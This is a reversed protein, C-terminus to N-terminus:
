FCFFLKDGEIDEVIGEIEKITSIYWDRKTKHSTFEEQNKENLLDIRILMFQENQFLQGGGKREEHQEGFVNDLIIDQGQLKSFDYPVPQLPPVQKKVTEWDIGEFYDDNKIEDVGSSGLREKWNPNLLKKILNYMQPSMQGEDYGISPWDIEFEGTAYDKINQFIQEKTDANFPPVGIVFEYVMCGFAWWDISVHRQFNGSLVEPSMYDPTGVVRAKLKQKLHGAEDAQIKKGARRKGPKKKTKDFERKFDKLDTIEKLGFDNQLDGIDTSVVNEHYVQSFNSLGFDALKIHMHKDLLINEPKLDRHIINNKHLYDIALVLEALYQKAEDNEDLYGEERLLDGFDGGPLFEMAFCVYNKHIFSFHATVVHEGSIVQFINRENILNQKFAESVDKSFRIIKMAYIDGTKKQRVLMVHGYGGQGIKKLMEFEKLTVSDKKDMYAQERFKRDFLISDSKWPRDYDEDGSDDDLNNGPGYVEAEKAKKVNAHHDDEKFNQGKKATMKKIVDDFVQIKNKIEDKKLKAEGLEEKKVETNKKSFVSPKLEKQNNSKLSNRGGDDDLEEKESEEIDAELIVSGQQRLTNIKHNM